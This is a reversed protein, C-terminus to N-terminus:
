WWPPDLLKRVTDRLDLLGLPKDLTLVAGLAHARAHTERDGFATMLIVPISMHMSKLTGLVDLGSVFPMRVDSIVLDFPKKPRTEVGVGLARLLERGDAAEVVEFGDRELVARVLARLEESDDAVLVRNRDMSVDVKDMSASLDMPYM